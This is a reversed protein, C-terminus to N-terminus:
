KPFLRNRIYHTTPTLRVGRPKRWMARDIERKDGIALCLTLNMEDATIFFQRVRLAADGGVGPYGCNQCGGHSCGTSLWHRNHKNSRAFTAIRHSRGNFPHRNDLHVGRRTIIGKHRM